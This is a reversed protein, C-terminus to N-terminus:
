IVHDWHYRPAVLVAVPADTTINVVYQSSILNLQHLVSVLEFRRDLAPSARVEVLFVRQTSEM